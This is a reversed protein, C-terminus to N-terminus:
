WQWFKRDIVHGTHPNVIVEVRRGFHDRASIVYVEGHRGAHTISAFHHRLRGLVTHLPVVGLTRPRHVFGKHLHHKFVFRKHRDHDFFGHRPSYPWPVVHTARGKRFHRFERKGRWQRHDFKSGHGRGIHLELGSRHRFRDGDGGKGGAHGAGPLMLLAALLGSLLVIKRM